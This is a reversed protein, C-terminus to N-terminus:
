QPPTKKLQQLVAFPHPQEDAPASDQLDAAPECAAHRPAFPLAMILEDELLALLDFQRSYVLVDDELEEDLRAATAEDHVFRFARQVHLPEEMAQLCRQCELTLAVDASLELWIEKGQGATQRVSGQTQWHVPTEASSLPCEDALRPLAHLATTGSLTAGAEAFATIHLRRPDHPQPAATTSSPTSHKDM